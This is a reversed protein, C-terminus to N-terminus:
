RTPVALVGNRLSHLFHAVLPVEGLRLRVQLCCPVLFREDLNCILPLVFLLCRLLRAVHINLLATIVRQARRVSFGDVLLVFGTRVVLEILALALCLSHIFVVM